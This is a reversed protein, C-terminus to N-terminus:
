WVVSLRHKTDGYGGGGWLRFSIRQCSHAPVTGFDRSDLHMMRNDSLLYAQGGEIEVHKRTEIGARLAPHTIGAFEENSCPVEEDEQTLPNRVTVRPPDCANPASVGHGNLLFTGGSIDVVDGGKGIIRGIVFRAPADPDTCRVLVGTEPSTSRSILVTDGPALQPEISAALNPDDAPVVWVDFLLGYLLGGIVGLVAITWGLIKLLTRV